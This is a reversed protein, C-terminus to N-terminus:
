ASGARAATELVAGEFGSGCFDLQYFQAFTCPGSWTAARCIESALVRAIEAWSTVVGRISHPNARIFEHERGKLHFASRFAEM